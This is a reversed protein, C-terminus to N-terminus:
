THLVHKFLDAPNKRIVLDKYYMLTNTTQVGTRLWALQLSSILQRVKASAPRCCSDAVSHLQADAPWGRAEARLLRELSM